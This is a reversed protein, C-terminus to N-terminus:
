GVGVIRKQEKLEHSEGDRRAVNRTNPVPHSPVSIGDAKTKSPHQTSPTMATHPSSNSLSHQKTHSSNDVILALNKVEKQNVVKTHAQPESGRGPKTCKDSADSIDVKRKLDGSHVGGGSSIEHTGVPLAINTSKGVGADRKEEKPDQSGGVTRVVNRTNASPHSPRAIGDAKESSATTLPSYGSSKCDSRSVTSVLNASM